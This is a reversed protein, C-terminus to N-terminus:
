AVGPLMGLAAARGAAADKDAATIQQLKKPKPQQLEAKCSPITAGAVALMAVTLTWFTSRVAGTIRKM